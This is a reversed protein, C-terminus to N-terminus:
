APTSPASNSAPPEAEEFVPAVIPQPLEDVEGDSRVDEQVTRRRRATSRAAPTRAKKLASTTAVSPSAEETDTDAGAVSGRRPRPPM